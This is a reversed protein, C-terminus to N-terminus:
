RELAAFRRSRRQYFANLVVQLNWGLFMAFFPATWIFQRQVFWYHVRLDGLLIIVLPFAVLAGCLALREWRSEKLFLSVFAVPLLWYFWRSGVLILVVSKLGWPPPAIFAFTDEGMPRLAPVMFYLYIPLALLGGTVIPALYHGLAQLRPFPRWTLLFLLTAGSVMLVGYAHFVCVFWVGAVVAMWRYVSPITKTRLASRLGLLLWFSFLALTSLTGYPRLELAHFIQHKNFTLCALAAIFGVRGYPMETWIKYFFLFTLLMTAYHPISVVWKNESLLFFPLTLLYDGPYGAPTGWCLYDILKHVSSLKAMGLARMQEIEDAWFPRGAFRMLRIWIGAGVLTWASGIFWRQRTSNSNLFEGSKMLRAMM